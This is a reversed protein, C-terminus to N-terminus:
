DDPVGLQSFLLMVFKIIIHGRRMPYRIRSGMQLTIRRGCYNLSNEAVRLEIGQAVDAGRRTGSAANLRLPERRRQFSFQGRKLREVCFTRSPNKLIM